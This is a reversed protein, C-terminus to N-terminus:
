EPFGFRLTPIHEKLTFSTEFPHLSAIRFQASGQGFFTEAIFSGEPLQAATNMLMGTLHILQLQGKYLYILGYPRWFGCPEFTEGKYRGERFAFYWLQPDRPGLLTGDPGYDHDPQIHVGQFFHRGNKQPQHYFDFCFWEGEFLAGIEQPPWTDETLKFLDNLFSLSKHISGWSLNWSSKECAKILTEAPIDLLMFPDVDLAQALALLRKSGKPLTQTDGSAWRLITKRHPLDKLELSRGFAAKNGDFEHAIFDQILDKRLQIHEELIDKLPDTM